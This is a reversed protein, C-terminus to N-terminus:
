QRALAEGRVFVVANGVQHRRQWHASREVQDLLGTRRHYAADLLLADIHYDDLIKAWGAQGCTVTAYAQWVDDPYIEIRGDMFVKLRPHAAWSLYEGWEFRSFVRPGDIDQVLLAQAAHVEATTTDAPRLLFLPNFRQWGPLSLLMAVLLGAVSFAAGRNPRPNTAVCASPWLLAIRWALMPAIALLWWAVMRVSGCALVGFCGLLLLERTTLPAAGRKKRALAILAALIPLSGFFALGIRQNFGPPLWEDIGRAAATNSTQGVYRYIDWGYPNALTALAGAALCVGLLLCRRRAPPAPVRWATWAAALWWCGLLMIGAPFAGHLNPWLTMLFPPVILLGPRRESRELLDYMAVFLLLSFTQPRITLVDWLGLFVAVGIALAVPLSGSVRRCLAVLWLLTLAVLAANLIRVLALGGVNFLQYYIVQSLWNVDQFPQGAVTCTFIDHDLLRGDEVIARGRALHHWFDALYSTNGALAIFAVAPVLLWRVWADTPLFARLTM